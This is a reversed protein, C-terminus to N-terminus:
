YNNTLKHIIVLLSELAQIMQLILKELIQMNDTVIKSEKDTYIELAKIRNM